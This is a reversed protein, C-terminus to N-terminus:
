TETWYSDHDYDSPIPTMDQLTFSAHWIPQRFAHAEAQIQDWEETTITAPGTDTSITIANEPVAGRRILGALKDVENWGELDAKTTGIRHVGRPDKFDHDFGAELRRNREVIVDEKVPPLPGTAAVHAAQWLDLYPQIKSEDHFITNPMAPDRYECHGSVGDWQIAWLAIDPALEVTYAEGDVIIRSDDFIVTLHM